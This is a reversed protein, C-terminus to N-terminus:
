LLLSGYTSEALETPRSFADKFSASQKHLYTRVLKPLFEAAPWDQNMGFHCLWDEIKARQYTAGANKLGFSMDYSVPM